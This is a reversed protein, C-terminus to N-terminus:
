IATFVSASATQAELPCHTGSPHASSMFVRPYLHHQGQPLFVLIGLSACEWPGLCLSWLTTTLIVPFRAPSRFDQHIKAPESRMTLLCRLTHLARPELGPACLPSYLKKFPHPIMETGTGTENRTIFYVLLVCSVLSLTTDQSELNCNGGHPLRSPLFKM